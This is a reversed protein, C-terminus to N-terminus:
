KYSTPLLKIMIMQSVNEIPRVIDLTTHKIHIIDFTNLTIIVLNFMDIYNIQIYNKPYSNQIENLSKFVNLTKCKRM